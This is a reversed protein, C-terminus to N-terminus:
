KIDVVKVKTSTVATIKGVVDSGNNNSSFPNLKGISFTNGITYGSGGNIISYRIGSIDDGVISNVQDNFNAIHFVLGSGTCNMSSDYEIDGTKEAITKSILANSADSVYITNKSIDGSYAFDGIHEFKLGTVIGETTTAKNGGLAVKINGSNKEIGKWLASYM